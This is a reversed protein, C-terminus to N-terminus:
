SAHPQSALRSLSVSEIEAGGFKLVQYRCDYIEVVEFDQMGVHQLRSM